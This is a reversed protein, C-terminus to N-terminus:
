EVIIASIIADQFPHDNGNRTLAEILAVVEMGELVRGFATHKGDLWPTSQATIIFFQSGNTNPGSNAMALTGRVLKYSNIEDAFTYGPGGQGDDAWNADKTNPDGGQIMFNPIVRHFKTSSYFGERALKLFNEVTKPADKQFLELKIDGFNTKMLAIPNASNEPSQVSPTETNAKQGNWFYIGTFFGVLVIATIIYNKMFRM